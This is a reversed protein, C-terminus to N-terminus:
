NEGRYTDALRGLVLLLFLGAASAIERADAVGRREIIRDLGKVHFAVVQSSRVRADALAEVLESALSSRGGGRDHAAERLAADLNEAYREELDPRGGGGTDHSGGEGPGRWQTMLRAYQRLLFEYELAAEGKGRALAFSVVERLRLPALGGKSIFDTAGAEICVLALSPDTLGTLVIIPTRGALGRLRSVPELGFGDPLTLDLLILDFHHGELAQVAEALTQANTVEADIGGVEGFGLLECILQFDGANDEVSLFHLQRTM